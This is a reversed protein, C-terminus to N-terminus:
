VSAVNGDDTNDAAEKGQAKNTKKKKNYLIIYILSAIILLAPIVTIGLAIHYLLLAGLGYDTSFLFRVGAVM